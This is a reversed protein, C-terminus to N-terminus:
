GYIIHAFLSVIPIAIVTRILFIVILQGFKLGMDAKMMANASETFFIIQVTSLVIVFFIAMESIQQGAITMVPLAIEACGVLTAPAIVAADPMQCLQLYPIMPMGIWKFIPTYWCLFLSITAISMVFSVIKLAFSLVDPISTIFVSYQTKKAKTTAAALAKKFIGMTYKGPRALEPTQVVGNRYVDKKWCLPPIRIVIIALIFVIILSCLVAPGYMYETGTISVLLAFFGLSVVSFNTSICCAEKETYVNENYLRNTLYVGVAPAAVFSSLADVAAQGPIKFVRRMIPEMLTGIFELIGFEILLNVLWGAITVTFLCTGALGIAMPGVEPDMVKQLFTANLAGEAAGASITHESTPMATIAIAFIAALYFLVGDVMGDKEHFKALPGKKTVKAITFTVALAICVILTMWNKVSGLTAKLWDIFLVMPTGTKGGITTNIFFVWVGLGSFVLFKIFNAPTITSYDVEVGVEKSLKKELEEASMAKTTVNTDKGEM